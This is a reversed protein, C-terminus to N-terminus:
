GVGLLALNQIIPATAGGGGAFPSTASLYDWYNTVGTGAGDAFDILVYRLDGTNFSVSSSETGFSGASGFADSSMAASVSGTSTDGTIRFVYYTDASYSGISALNAGTTVGRIYAIGDAKMVVSIRDSDGTNRFNWRIEGSSNSSRRMACYIVFSGSVDSSLQREANNGGLGASTATIGRTSQYVPSSNTVLTGGTLSWAGAWGTGGNLGSISTADAYDEFDEVATWAM